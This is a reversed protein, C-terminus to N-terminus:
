RVKVVRPITSLFHTTTNTPRLKGVFVKVVSKVRKIRGFRM